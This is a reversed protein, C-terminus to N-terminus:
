FTFRMGVQLSLGGYQINGGKLYYFGSDLEGDSQLLTVPIDPEDNSVTVSTSGTRVFTCQQPNATCFDQACSVQGGASARVASIPVSCGADILGPEVVYSGYPTTGFVSDQDRLGDPVSM